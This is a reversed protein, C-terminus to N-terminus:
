ISGRITRSPYWGSRSRDKTFQGRKHFQTVDSNKDARPREYRLILKLLKKGGRVAQAFERPLEHFGCSDRVNPTISWGVSRCTAEPPPQQPEM